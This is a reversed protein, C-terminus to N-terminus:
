IRRRELCWQNDRVDRFVVRMQGGDLELRFYDRDIPQSWWHRRERWLEYIATVEQLEERWFLGSRERLVIARPLGGLDATVRVRTPRPSTILSAVLVSIEGFRDRLRRLTERLTRGFTSVDEPLADGFLTLQASGVHFPRLPYVILSLSVVPGGVTIGGLIRVGLRSLKEASSSPPKVPKGVVHKEDRERIELQMGEAQYGSRDLEEALDGTMWEVHARLPSRDEVPDNFTHSRSLQLPPADASVLRADVGRALDYLAGTHAGFQRVVAPRPLEVLAGLTRIGLFRLRRLM